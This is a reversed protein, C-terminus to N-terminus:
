FGRCFGDNGGCIREVGAVGFLGSRCDCLVGSIIATAPIPKAGPHIASKILPLTNGTTPCKPALGAIVYCVSLFPMVKMLGGMEEISRTHTRSYIMGILAFFLATMLGHSLMQLVAGTM